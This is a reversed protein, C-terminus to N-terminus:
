DTPQQALLDRLKERQQQLFTCAKAAKSFPFLESSERLGLNLM